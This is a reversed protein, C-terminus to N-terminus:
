WQPGLRLRGCGNLRANLVACQSRLSNLTRTIMDLDLKTVTQKSQGTDLIYSQAGNVALALFAADYAVIAARVAALSARTDQEDM